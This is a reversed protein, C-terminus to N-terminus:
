KKKNKETKQRDKGDTLGNLFFSVISKETLGDQEFFLGIDGNKLITLISSYLRDGKYITKGESPLTKV